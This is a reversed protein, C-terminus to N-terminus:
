SEVGDEDKAKAALVFFGAVIGRAQEETFGEAMMGAVMSRVVERLEDLGEALKTYDVAKESNGSVYIMHTPRHQCFGDEDRPLGCCVLAKSPDTTVIGRRKLMELMEM